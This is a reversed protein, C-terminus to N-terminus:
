LIDNTLDSYLTITRIYGADIAREWTRVDADATVIDAITVTTLDIHLPDTKQWAFMMKTWWAYCSYAPNWDSEGGYQVAYRQAYLAADARYGAEANNWVSELNIAIAGFLTNNATLIPMVWRRMYGVLKSKAPMHTGDALTGSIAGIGFKYWVKAM